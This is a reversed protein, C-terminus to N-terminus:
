TVFYLCSSILLLPEFVTFHPTESKFFNGVLCIIWFYVCVLYYNLRKVFRGWLHQLSAHVLQWNLCVILCFASVLYLINHSQIFADALHICTVFDLAVQLAHLSYNIKKDTHTNGPFQVWLRKRQQRSARGSLWLSQASVLRFNGKLNIKVANGLTEDSFVLIKNKERQM